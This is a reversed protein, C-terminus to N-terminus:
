LTQFLRFIYSELNAKSHSFFLRFTDPQTVYLCSPRFIKNYLQMLQLRFIQATINRMPNENDKLQKTKQPYLYIILLLRQM